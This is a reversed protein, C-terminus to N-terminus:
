CFLLSVSQFYSSKLSVPFTEVLLHQHVKLVQLIFTHLSSRNLLRGKLRVLIRLKLLMATPLVWKKLLFMMKHFSIFSQKWNEVKKKWNEPLKDIVKQGPTFLLLTDNLTAPKRFLASKDALFFGCIRVVINKSCPPFKRWTILTLTACCPWPYIQGM